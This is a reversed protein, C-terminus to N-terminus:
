EVYLFESGNLMAHCFAALARDAPSLPAGPKSDSKAETKGPKNAAPMGMTLLHGRGSSDSMVGVKNEFRWFGMTRPSPDESTFLLDGTGLAGSSIRVDDLAGHFGSPSSSARGGLSVPHPNAPLAVLSSAVKDILLPEDDNSLDKVAFTVEGPSEATAYRVAASVFYPKNMEIRLGSFHVAEGFSGDKLTGFAQLALVMPARRSRMGTIGLQWYSEKSSGTGKAVIVRLAGSDSVSRPVIVAEVTFGKSFDLGETGAAVLPTRHDMDLRAAQGDRNPIREPNFAATAAAKEPAAKTNARIFAAGRATEKATPARAHLLAYARAVHQEPTGAPLEARLRRAMTEGRKLMFPSNLLLLSQIPTTTVPRSSSSNFWEPADFVDMLPDRNNRIARTYVSRVPESFLAGEGGQKKVDLDGCAAFLADRIQEAELRQPQFRWVLVNLPDKTRGASPDPHESSRRYAASTLVLRHMAKADWGLRVFESALWDLLEPHSPPEGLRGFDSAYPTLGRRFYQQWLRNMALRATFPNEPQTLWRAFAARRGSSEVGEPAPPIVAPAAPVTKSLVSLFAPEVSADKKPITVPSATRAPERVALVYPPEEPKEADFTALQKRLDDLRTRNEGKIVRDLRAFEYDVQRWALAALQAEIPAREAAPKNIMAQIDEPFMAVSKTAAKERYPQEIKAIEERISATKKEWVALKRAHAEAEEKTWAARDEVPLINSFFARLAFYDRQLIPDFKHDHCRACQMGAGLLADGVTDTVDNLITTWQGRADRLNYEYIWHHLFGTGTLADPDGPFLEDGAVQEQLFRDYPKNAHLSRIVYDRFRWATPRYDDARFGDSDAYRVLDLWVRANREAFGRSALLRDVLREYAGPAADQVFAEVEEPTPPLGTVDFTVRRILAARGAEPAPTLGEKALRQDIFRDVPNAGTSPLAPEPVEARVAPRYAWWSRDQDNIRGPLYKGSVPKAARSAPWKAGASVWSKITAVEEATLRDGKPPMMEDEDTSLIRQLFLSDEPKGAVLATGSDGGVTLGQAADMVLGGKNKGASHSHCEFCRRDLISLAKESFDDAALGPLAALLPMLLAPRLPM